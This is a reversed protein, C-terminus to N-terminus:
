TRSYKMYTTLVDVDALTDVDLVTGKDSVSVETVRSANAEVVPRAGGGGRLELLQSRLDAGFVVPHGRRGGHVPLVVGDATARRLLSRVTEVRIAPMDAPWVAISLSPNCASVGTAISSAMGSTYGANLVCQVPFGLTLRRVPEADHGTVVVIHGPGVACASELTHTLVPKGAVSLLLKNQVGFRTSTGAAPIVICVNDDTVTAKSSYRLPAFSLVYRGTVGYTM